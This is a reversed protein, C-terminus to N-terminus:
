HLGRGWVQGETVPSCSCLVSFLKSGSSFAETPGPGFTPATPHPICYFPGHPLHTPPQHLSRTTFPQGPLPQFPLAPGQRPLTVFLPTGSARAEGWCLRPQLISLVWLVCLCVARVLTAVAEAPLSSSRARARHMDCRSNWRQTCLLEM